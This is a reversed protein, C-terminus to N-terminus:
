SHCRTKVYLGRNDSGRQCRSFISLESLCFTPIVNIVDVFKIMCAFIYVTCRTIKPPTLKTSLWLFSESNIKTTKFKTVTAWDLLAASCLRHYLSRARNGQDGLWKQSSPKSLYCSTSYYKHRLRWWSSSESLLSQQKILLLLSFPRAELINKVVGRTYATPM